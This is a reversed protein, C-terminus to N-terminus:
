MKSLKQLENELYGIEPDSLYFGKEVEKTHGALQNRVELPLGANRWRNITTKRIVHFSVNWNMNPYVLACKKVAERLFLSPASQSVWYFPKKLNMSQLLNLIEMIRPFSRIPIIRKRQGKGKVILKNETLDHWELNILEQIRMATIYAFEIMMAMVPREKENFYNILINIQEETCTVVDKSKYDPIMVKSIPNKEMWELQVAHDFLKSHRQMRKWITNNALKLNSKVYLIRERIAIHDNLPMNADFFEKYIQKYYYQTAPNLKSVYDIHFQKILDLLMKGEDKRKGPFLTENIRKDLIEMCIKKNKLNWEFGTSQRVSNVCTYVMGNRYRYCYAKRYSPHLWRDESSKAFRPM